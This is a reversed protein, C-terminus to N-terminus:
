VETREDGYGDGDRVWRPLRDDKITSISQKFDVRAVVMLTGNGKSSAKQAVVSKPTHTKTRQEWGSAQSFRSVACTYREINM